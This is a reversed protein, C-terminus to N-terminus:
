MMLVIKGFFGGAEAQAVADRVEGLPYRQAVSPQLGGSDALAALDALDSPDPNVFHYQGGAALVAQADVVSLVRRPDDVLGPSVALAEGGVLDLVADVGGPAASRVRDALGDGYAVPEVGLARLADHNRPRATGVVHAGRARALQVALHGVGGSAAHVLLTDGEAVELRRLAQYATLGALPLCSAEAADLRSPAKAVCRAPLAVLDAWTGDGIYDKRAYGFVRDGVQVHTVSPGVQVVEGAADWGPVLPLQTVFAPELYGRVIKYDVPNLSAAEVRVLVWDPGLKPEPREGVTLVEPGGYEEVVVARMAVM